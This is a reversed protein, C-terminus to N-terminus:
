KIDEYNIELSSPIKRIFFTNHTKKLWKVLELDDYEDPHSNPNVAMIAAPSQKTKRFQPPIALGFYAFLTPKTETIINSLYQPDYHRIVNYHYWEDAVHFDKWMDVHDYKVIIEAHKRNLIMWQSNRTINEWTIGLKEPTKISQFAYNRQRNHSDIDSLYPTIGTYLYSQKTINHLINYTLDFSQSPICSESILIFRKNSPDKLANKILLNAALLLNSHAWETHIHEPIQADILFQQNLKDREKTHAYVNCRDAGDTLYDYWLKPQKLNNRTLFLFATKPLDSKKFSISKNFEVDVFPSYNSKAYNIQQTKDEVSWYVKPEFRKIEPNEICFTMFLEMRIEYNNLKSFERSKKESGSKDSNNFYTKSFKPYKQWYDRVTPTTIKEISKLFAPPNVCLVTDLIAFRKQNEPKESGNTIMYIFDVGWSLLKPDYLKMFNNIAEKTMLCSNNEVFNTYTLFKTPRTKNIDWGIESGLTFSPQCIWLDCELSLQFMRRIDGTTIIIDDDLFFIRDYEQIKDYHTNYLHHFNQWKDGKRKEIYDVKSKYNEYNEDNDGYYVVWVDYDRKPGLWINDFNTNDGVSSFVLNKM